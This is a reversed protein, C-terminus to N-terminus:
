KQIYDKLHQGNSASFFRGNTTTKKCVRFLLGYRDSGAQEVREVGVGELFLLRNTLARPSGVGLLKFVARLDEDASHFAEGSHFWDNQTSRGLEGLLLRLSGDANVIVMVVRKLATLEERMAKVQDELNDATM